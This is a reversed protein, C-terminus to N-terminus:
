MASRSVKLLLRTKCALEVGLAANNTFINLVLISRRHLPQTISAQVERYLGMTKCCGKPLVKMCALGVIIHCWTRLLITWLTCTVNYTFHSEEIQCLLELTTVLCRAKNRWVGPMWSLQPHPLTPVPITCATCLGTLTCNEGRRRSEGVAKSHLLLVRGGARIFVEVEGAGDGEASLLASRNFLLYWLHDPSAQPQLPSANPAGHAWTATNGTLSSSISHYVSVENGPEWTGM